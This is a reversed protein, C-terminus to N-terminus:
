VDEERLTADARRDHVRSVVAGAALSVVAFVGLAVVLVPVDVASTRGVDPAGDPVLARSLTPVVSATLAAAGALGAAVGLVLGAVREDRRARRRLVRGAGLARLVASERRDAGSSGLALAALGIAGLLAVGVAAWRWSESVVQPSVAGSDGQATVAAVPRDSAAPVAEATSAPDASSVLLTNVALERESSSLSAQVAERDAVLGEAGPLGPLSRSVRRVVGPFTATAAPVLVEITDGVEVDLDAALGSTMAVAVEGGSSDGAGDGGDVALLRTPLDAIRAPADVAARVREVGPLDEYPRLDVQPNQDDVLPAVAFSVRVDGGAASARTQEVLAAASASAVASAVATGVVLAVLTSSAATARTRREARRLGLVLALGDDRRAVFRAAAGLLPRAVAAVLVAAAILLLTPALATLADVRVEGSPSVVVVDGLWATRAALIVGAGALLLAVAVTGAPPPGTRRRLTPPSWARVLAVLVPLALALVLAYPAPTGTVAVTVAVGVSAGVLGALAADAGHWVLVQARSAGRAALITAESRRAARLAGAVHWLVLAGVAGVLVLAVKAVASSAAEARAVAHVRDGLGGELTVRSDDAAQVLSPLATALAELDPRPSTPVTLVWSSTRFDPLRELTTATVVVPGVNGSDAGSAVAPDAFWRPDAPDDPTWTGVVVVETAGLDLRDDVGVGLREAAAVPLTAEDDAAGWRGSSLSALRSLDPYDAVVYTRAGAEIGDSRTGATVDLGAERAQEVVGAAADVEDTLRTTASVRLAAGRPPPDSLARAVEAEVQEASSSSLGVVLVAFVTATTALAVLLWAHARARRWALPPEVM